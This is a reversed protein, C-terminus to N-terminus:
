LFHTGTFNINGDVPPREPHSDGNPIIIMEVRFSKQQSFVSILESRHSQLFLSEGVSVERMLERRFQPLEKAQEESNVRFESSEARDAELVVYSVMFVKGTEVPGSGIFGLDWFM